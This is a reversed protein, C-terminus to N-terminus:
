ATRTTQARRQPGALQSLRDLTVGEIGRDAAARVLTVWMYPPLKKRVRWKLVAHLTLGVDTALQRDDGWLNLIESATEM